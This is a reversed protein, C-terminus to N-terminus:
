QDSGEVPAANAAEEEGQLDLQFQMEEATMRRVKASEGTDTRYITAQGQKPDDLKIICEINRWEYGSSIGRSLGDIIAQKQEIEGALTKALESKKKELTGKEQLTRSQEKAMELIEPDSFFYQLYETVKSAM